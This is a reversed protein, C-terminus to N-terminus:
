PGDPPIPALSDEPHHVIAAGSLVTYPRDNEPLGATIKGAQRAGIGEVVRVMEGQQDRLPPDRGEPRMGM